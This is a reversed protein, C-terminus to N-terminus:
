ARLDQRVAQESPNSVLIVLRAKPASAIIRPVVPVRAEAALSRDLVILDFKRIRILELAAGLTEAEGTVAWASHKKIQTRAIHRTEFDGEVLLIQLKKMPLM